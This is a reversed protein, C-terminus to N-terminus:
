MNRFIQKKQSKALCKVSAVDSHFEQGLTDLIEKCTKFGKEPHNLGKIALWTLLRCLESAEQGDHTCFSQEGAFKLGAELNWHFAIPIPTVRMISGNSSTREKEPRKEVFPQRNRLFEIFGKLTYGGIGMSKRKDQDKEHKHGNNYGCFWWLLFRSRLDIPDFALDNVLLSDAICLAESTDDTWQGKLVIDKEPLDKFGKINYGAPNYPRLELPAGMSDGIAAGVFCAIAKSGKMSAFNQTTIVEKIYSFDPDLPDLISFDVLESTKVSSYWKTLEEDSYSLFQDILKTNLPPYAASKEMIKKFNIFHRFNKKFLFMLKEIKM